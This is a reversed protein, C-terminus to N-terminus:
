PPPLKVLKIITKDINQSIIIGLIVIFFSLCMVLTLNEDLFLIGFSCTVLPVLYGNISTFVAGARRILLVRIFGGLSTSLIGALLLGILPKGFSIEEPKSLFFIPLSIILAILFSCASFLIPDCKPMKQIIIGGGALCISICICILSAILENFNEIMFKHPESLIILGVIGIFFGIWKKLTIIEKLILKALILVFLPISALYIALESTTIFNLALPVMLFPLTISFFSYFISHKWITLDKPLKKGSMFCFLITAFSAIIIRGAGSSVSNFESLSWIIFMPSSGFCTM